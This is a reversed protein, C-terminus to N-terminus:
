ASMEEVTQDRLLDSDPPDNRMAVFDGFHCMYIVYIARTEVFRWDDRVRQM